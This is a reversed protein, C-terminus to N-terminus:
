KKGFIGAVLPLWLPVCLLDINEMLWVSKVQMLCESQYVHAFLFHM